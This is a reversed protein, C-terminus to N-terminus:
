AFDLKCKKHGRELIWRRKRKMKRLKEKFPFKATVKTVIVPRESFLLIRQITMVLFYIVDYKM